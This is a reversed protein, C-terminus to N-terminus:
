SNGAMTSRRDNRYALGSFQLRPTAKYVVRFVARRLTDKRGALTPDSAVTAAYDSSEHRYQGDIRVKDTADWTAGLSAGRNLTYSTTVDDLAGIERWAGAAIGLKARVQWNANLRANFGSYDRAAFADDHKRQVWGGLFQLETKRTVLWNIKAKVEDQEYSNDVLQANIQERNPYKGRTRRLQTGVTSGSRALYDLGLEGIQEIRDGGQQSALEYELDSRLVGARLRWSPHLLWGGDAFVRRESRVNRARSHFNVFPALAEVYSAGVNGDLHTGVHWNLNVRGDKADHDLEPLAEYRIRTFALAATLAQQGIRKDVKMGAGAQRSNSSPAEGDGDPAGLLNDEHALAYSVYPQLVQDPAAQASVCTLAGMLQAYQVVRLWSRREAPSASRVL